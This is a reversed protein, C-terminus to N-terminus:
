STIQGVNSVGRILLSHTGATLPEINSVSSIRRNTKADGDLFHWATGEQKNIRESVAKQRMKEQGGAVRFTKEREVAVASM